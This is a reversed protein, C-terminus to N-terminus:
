QAEDEGILPQYGSWRGSSCRPGEGYLRLVSRVPRRIGVHRLTGGYGESILGFVDSVACRGQSAHNLDALCPWDPVMFHCPIRIVVDLRVIGSRSRLVNFSGVPCGSKLIGMGFHLDSRRVGRGWASQRGFVTPASGRQDDMGPHRVLIYEDHAISMSSRFLGWPVWAM